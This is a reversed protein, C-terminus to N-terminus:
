ACSAWTPLHGPPADAVQHQSSELSTNKSRSLITGRRYAQSEPNSGSSRAMYTWAASITRYM